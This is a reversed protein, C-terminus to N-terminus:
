ASPSLSDIHCPHIYAAKIADELYQLACLNLPHNEEVHHCAYGQKVSDALLLTRLPRDKMHTDM